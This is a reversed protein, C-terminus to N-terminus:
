AIKLAACDQSFEGSNTDMLGVVNRVFEVVATQTGLCIGSFLVCNVRAYRAAKVKGRDRKESDAPYLIETLM